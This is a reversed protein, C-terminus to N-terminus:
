RPNFDWITIALIGKNIWNIIQGEVRETLNIVIFDLSSHITWGLIHIRVKFPQRDKELLRRWESEFM